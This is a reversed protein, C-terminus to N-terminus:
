FSRMAKSRCFRTCLFIVYSRKQYSQFFSAFYLISHAVITVYPLKQLCTVTLLTTWKDFHTRPARMTALIWRIFCHLLENRHFPPIDLPTRLTSPARTSDERWWEMGLPFQGRLLNWPYVWGKQSINHNQLSPWTCFPAIKPLSM